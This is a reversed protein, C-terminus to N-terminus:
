WSLMTQNTTVVEKDEEVALRAFSAVCLASFACSLLPEQAAAVAPGAMVTTDEGATISLLLTGLDSGIISLQETSWSRIDLAVM